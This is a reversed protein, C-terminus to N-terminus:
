AERGGRCSTEARAPGGRPIERSPSRQKGGSKGELAAGGARGEIRDIGREGEGRGQDILFRMGEEVGMTEIGGEANEVGGLVATPREREVEHFREARDKGLSEGEEDAVEWSLSGRM